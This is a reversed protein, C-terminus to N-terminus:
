YLAIASVHGVNVGYTKANEEAIGDYLITKQMNKSKGQKQVKQLKMGPIFNQLFWRNETTKPPKFGLFHVLFLIVGLSGTVVSKLSDHMARFIQKNYDVVGKCTSFILKWNIYTCSCRM